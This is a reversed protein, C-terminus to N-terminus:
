YSMAEFKLVNKISPPLTLSNKWFSCFNIFLFCFMTFRLCAYGALSAWCKLWLFKLLFFLSCLLTFSSIKSFYNAFIDWSNFHVFKRILLGWLCRALKLFYVSVSWKHIKYINNGCYFCIIYLPSSVTAKSKKVSVNSVLICHFMAKLKWGPITYEYFNDSMKISSLFLLDEDEMTPCWNIIGLISCDLLSIILMNNVIISTYISPSDVRLISLAHRQPLPCSSQM